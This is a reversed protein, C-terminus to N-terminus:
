MPLQPWDPGRVKDRFAFSFMFPTNNEIQMKIKIIKINCIVIILLKLIPLYNTLWRRAVRFIVWTARPRELIEQRLGRSMLVALASELAWLCRSTQPWKLTSKHRQSDKWKQQQSLVSQCFHSLSSLTYKLECIRSLTWWKSSIVAAAMQVAPWM